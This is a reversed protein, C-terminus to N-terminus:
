RFVEKNAELLHKRLALFLTEKQVPKSLYDECGSKLCNIKDEEMAFATLAIIPLEPKIHKIYRAAEIGNIEPMKIDMIIVDLNLVEARSIAESGTKARYLIAGTNKFLKQIYLFNVEEDEAILIHKDNLNILSDTKYTGIGTQKTEKTPPINPLYFHFNSGKDPQSSVWINGGLLKVINRCITLGLGTGSSNKSYANEVQFFRDFINKQKDYPIGIGTDKVFFYIVKNQALKYGIDIKGEETFKIANGVLNSIVQKLRKSDTRVILNSENEPICLNLKINEKGQKILVENYIKEIDKLLELLNTNKPVVKLQRAEIKAVDIVDEIINLLDNSSKRILNLYETREDSSPNSMSILEAFGIIANMPTRIEHSMNALFTTKLKNSEKENDRERSLKKIEQLQKHIDFFNLILKGSNQIKRVYLYHWRSHENTQILIEFQEDLQHSNRFEGIIKNLENFGTYSNLHNLYYIDSESIFPFTISAKKNLEIIKDYADIILVPSSLSNLVTKHFDDPAKAHTEDSIKVEAQIKTYYKLFSIEICDFCSDIHNVIEKKEDVELNATNIMEKYVSRFLKLYALYIHNAINKQICKQVESTIFETLAVYGDPYSLYPKTANYNCESSNSLLKNFSKIPNRWSDNILLFFDTEETNKSYSLIRSLLWDENRNMLDSFKAINVM